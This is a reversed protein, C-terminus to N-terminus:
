AAPAVPEEYGQAALAARFASVDRTSDIRLRHLDLDINVSATPDVAKVSRTVVKVCHECTMSPLTLEIM